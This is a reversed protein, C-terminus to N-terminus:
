CLVWDPMRDEAAIARCANTPAALARLQRMLECSGLLRNVYAYLAMAAPRFFVTIATSARTRKRAPEDGASEDVGEDRARKRSPEPASPVCCRARKIVHESDLDDQERMRKRSPPEQASDTRRIRKRGREETDECAGTLTFPFARKM